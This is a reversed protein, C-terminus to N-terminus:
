AGRARLVPFVAAAGGRVPAGNGGRGRVDPLVSVRAWGRGPVRAPRNQRRGSRRAGGVRGWARWAGRGAAPRAGRARTGSRAAARRVLSGTAVDRRLMVLVM